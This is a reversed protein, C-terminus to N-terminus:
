LENKPTKIRFSTKTLVETPELHENDYLDAASKYAGASMYGDVADGSKSHVTLTNGHEDCPTFYLSINRIYHIGHQRFFERDQFLSQFFEDIPMIGYYKGKM